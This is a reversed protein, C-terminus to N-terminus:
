SNWVIGQEQDKNQAESLMVCVLSHGCEQSFVFQGLEKLFLERLPPPLVCTQMVLERGQM